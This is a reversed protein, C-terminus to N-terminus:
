LARVFQGLLLVIKFIPQALLKAIRKRIAAIAAFSGRGSRRSCLCLLQGRLLVAHPLVQLTQFFIRM